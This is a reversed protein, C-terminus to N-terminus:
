LKSDKRRRIESIINKFAGSHDYSLDELLGSTQGVPARASLLNGIGNREVDDWFSSPAEQTRGDWNGHHLFVASSSAGTSNIILGFPEMDIANAKSDVRLSNIVLYSGGTSTDATIILASDIKTRLSEPFVSPIQNQSLVRWGPKNKFDELEKRQNETLTIWSEKM